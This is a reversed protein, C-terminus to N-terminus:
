NFLSTTSNFVLKVLNFLFLGVALITDSWDLMKWFLLFVFLIKVVIDIFRMTKIHRRANALTDPMEKLIYIRAGMICNKFYARLDLGTSDVKYEFKERDNMKNRVQYSRDMIFEWQNNTYFEFVDFGKCIREQIRVLCPKNGSLFIFADLIYAPIIQLFFICINHLIRSSKLSGGPYWVCGNLPIETTVIDKGLDIIEKWTVKVEQTSMLHGITLSKENNKIYNWAFLLIGNVAIDVPLFDAVGNNNCYMTRIVGKGAGILLGVPGNINDTWGPLPEKWIPIVISPRVIICPLGSKIQEVVLHEALCKTYAYGNPFNGLMHKSLKNVITEDLTEVLEIAKHPDIPPVYAKEHLVKEQPHSYATSVYMFMELNKMDKALELTFKTGRTNLLLTKKLPEDFRVTAAVHFVINVEETLTIRDKESIDLNIEGADGAIPVIKELFTTGKLAKLHDFLPSNFLVEVREKPQVGKKPRLLLYIKKIDSTKRLLKELLVKGLFGTGGTIFLTKDSFTQSIRDPLHNLKNPLIPLKYNSFEEVFSDM